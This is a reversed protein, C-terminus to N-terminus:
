IEKIKFYKLDLIKKYFCFQGHILDRYFDIMIGDSYSHLNSKDNNNIEISLMKPERRRWVTIVNTNDYFKIDM